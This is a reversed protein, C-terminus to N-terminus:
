AALACKHNNRRSGLCLGTATKLHGGQNNFEFYVGNACDGLGVTWSRKSLPDKKVICLNSDEEEMTGFGYVAAVLTLLTLKSLM